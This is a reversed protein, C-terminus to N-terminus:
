GSLNKPQGCLRAMLARATKLDHTELGETFQNYVTSLLDSAGETRGGRHRLEALSMAARLEWFLAGQQRATELAGEYCDEAGAISPCEGQLLLEGKIRLLEAVYWREGGRDAEALARDITALAEDLRGVGALSEGLTGLLEPYDTRWGTQMRMDAATQLLVLGQGFEGRRTLLTGKLSLAFIKNNTAYGAAAIDEYMAVGQEAAGLNGTALAIPCVALHLAECQSLKSDKAIADQLSAQAEDAARDMFGQLWLVRARTAQALIQQDYRAWTARPQDKVLRFRELLRDFCDRAERQRGAYHLGYGVMRDGLLVVGNDCRGAGLHLFRDATSRAALCEGAFFQAAWLLWLARLQGDLDDISEATELADTLVTRTKEVAGMTFFLALGLALGLQMRLMGSPDHDSELRKLAHETRERCEPM